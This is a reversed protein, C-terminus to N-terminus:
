GTRHCGDLVTVDSVSSTRQIHVGPLQISVSQIPTRKHSLKGSGQLSSISGSGTMVTSKGRKVMCSRNRNEVQKNMIMFFELVIHNEKIVSNHHWVYGNKIIPQSKAKDTSFVDCKQPSAKLGSIDSAARVYVVDGQKIYNRPKRPSDDQDGNLLALSYLFCWCM